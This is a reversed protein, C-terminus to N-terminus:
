THLPSTMFGSSGLEFGLIWMTPPSSLSRCATRWGRGGHQTHSREQGGGINLTFEIKKLFFSIILFDKTEKYIIDWNLSSFLFLLPFNYLIVFVSLFFNILFQGVNVSLNLATGALDGKLLYVLCNHFGQLTWPTWFLWILVPPFSLISRPPFLKWDWSVVALWSGLVMVRCMRWLPSKWPMYSIDQLLPCISM